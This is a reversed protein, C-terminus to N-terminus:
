SRYDGNIKVYDYTLDCGWATASEDGDGLTIDIVIEDQTLVRRALDESFGIGAGNACVPIEGGQSHFTVDVRGVDVDAGSYGIACLVRGWNADGGFMAAKFLSSSIVGRAVIRADAKTKAGSVRCELLKTAGEGDKAIMKCLRTMIEKLAAKFPEAETGASTIEANGALGNAMISVMDNTSTDGDVSVMNFTDGATESLIQQLADPAIAIDSTLFVLLTAMNPHIMGSGKAIGGIRCEVGGASFSVAVEKKFTDTTMIAKAAEGSFDGLGASLKPMGAAIPTIDLPEGIVGTSAVIVDDAAVGTSERVLACMKEAVEVGDANCTNANGSNCIVARARGNELHAKTVTLPAGKVLNTTYVAAASASVESVILALDNKTKNKRIGCHIGNASFGKPACVGGDIFKIM